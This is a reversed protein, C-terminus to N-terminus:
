DRSRAQGAALVRWTPMLDLLGAKDLWARDLLADEFAPDGPAVEDAFLANAAHVAAVADLGEATVRAPEHHHAVAETVGHPLDWRDLVLAGVEAHTVGLRRREVEHRPRGSDRAEQAASRMANPVCAMLVLEGVDHLWGALYASDAAEGPFVIAHALSATAWGHRIRAEVGLGEDDGLGGGVAELVRAMLVGAKGFRGRVGEASPVPRGSPPAVTGTGQDRESASPELQEVTAKVLGLAPDAVLQKLVLSREIARQLWEGDFPKRLVRHALLHAREAAEADIHGSLVMRVMGPYRERVEALLAAGDMGPMRMDTVIVDFPEESLLALAREGSPAFQMDWVSRKRRLRSRLAALVNEEDDVFLVKKL